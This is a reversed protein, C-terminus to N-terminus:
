NVVNVKEGSVLNQYGVVILKDGQELGTIAARNNYRSIVSVEKLNAKGDQAVYVVDGLDTKTIVEEPIVFVNDLKEMSVLIEASVNPKIKNGNKSVQVEIPFTRNVNSVSSGVYSIKGPIEEDSVERIRVKVTGGNRINTMYREPIGAEIQISNPNIVRAVKSMPPALEGTEFLTADVIGSFPATIFTKEYRAKMLEYNAKAADREYKSQLMQFESSVNDKYIKLQKQYSMEALDYQAKAADLNAKYIKNELVIITDGKSVYSGKDHKIRKIVGGEEVSLDAEEAAKVTGVVSIFDNFDQEQVSEVRVNSLKENQNNQDAKQQEAGDAEGCSVLAASLTIVFLVVLIKNLYRRM